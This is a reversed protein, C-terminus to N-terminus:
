IQKNKELELELLKLTLNNDKGGQSRNEVEYGSDQHHPSDLASFLSASAGGRLEINHPYEHPSLQERVPDIMYNEAMEKDNEMSM